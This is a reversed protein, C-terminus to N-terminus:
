FQARTLVISEKRQYFSQISHCIKGVVQNSLNFNSPLWIGQKSIKTAKPFDGKLPYCGQTHIPRWFKRTEIGHEQLYSALQDRNEALADIWQPCIDHDKPFSLIRITKCSSLLRLYTAHLKKMKALRYSLDELQAVGVAAQLNTLKFNYGIAPHADDGGTGPSDRGQDKLARIRKALEESRTIVMGGQGTTIHKAPSFSFCGAAGESGLAKGKWFSGLAEAADEIVKLGHKQAIKLIDDMPARRGNVHVPIIAKTKPTIAKLIEKPDICLDEEQIDVLIPTAGALHVANATAIFTFDPVIVEDGPGVGCAKLALTLAATGSTVGVAYPVRCFKAIQKEFERTWQGDNLYNSRIVQVALKKAKSGLIPSKWPIKSNM